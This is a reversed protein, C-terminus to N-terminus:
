DNKTFIRYRPNETIKFDGLKGNNDVIFDADDKDLEFNDEVVGETRDVFYVAINHKAALAELESRRRIGDIVDFGEQIIASSLFDPVVSCLYNAFDILVPRLEEKPIQRLEEEKCNRAIAMAKYVIDSTGASKTGYLDALYKAFTTKGARAKGIIVIVSKM